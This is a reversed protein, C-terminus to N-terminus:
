KEVCWEVQAVSRLSLHKPDDNIALPTCNTMRVEHRTNDCMLYVSTSQCRM